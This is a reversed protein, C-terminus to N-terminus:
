HMFNTSYLAAVLVLMAIAVIMLEAFISHEYRPSARIEGTQENTAHSQDNM